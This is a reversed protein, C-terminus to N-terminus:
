RNAGPLLVSMTASAAAAKVIDLAVFPAVALLLTERLGTHMLLSFQLAGLGYILALGVLAPVLSHPFRRLGTKETLWGVAVAAFVFGVIYGGTVGALAAPSTFWPIGVLGLSAYLVQSLGGYYKGLLAGSLLVVLVQLTFPVPTFPVYFRLLASAGTLCAFLFALSVKLVVNAERIHRFLQSRQTKYLEVFSM